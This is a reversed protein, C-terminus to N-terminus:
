HLNRLSQTKGTAVIHAGQIALRSYRERIGALDSEAFTRRNLDLLLHLGSRELPTERLGNPVEPEADCFCCSRLCRKFRRCRDGRNSTRFSSLVYRVVRPTSM